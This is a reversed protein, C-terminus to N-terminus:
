AASVGGSGRIQLFRALTHGVVVFTNTKLLAVPRPPFEGRVAPLLGKLM